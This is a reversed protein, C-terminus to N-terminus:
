RGQEMDRVAQRYREYAITSHKNPTKMWVFMWFKWRLWALSKM